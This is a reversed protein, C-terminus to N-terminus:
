GCHSPCPPPPSSVSARRRRLRRLPPQPLRKPPAAESKAEPAKSEAKPAPTAASADEGDELLVAIAENVKVGSTGEAILIKGIM